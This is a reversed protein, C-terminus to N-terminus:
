ASISSIGYNYFDDCTIQFDFFRSVYEHLM